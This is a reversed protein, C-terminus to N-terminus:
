RRDEKRLWRRVTHSSVDYRKALLSAVEHPMHGDRELQKAVRLAAAAKKRSSERREAATVRGGERAGQQRGRGRAVVEAINTLGPLITMSALQAPDMVDINFKCRAPPPSFEDILAKVWKEQEAPDVSVWDDDDAPENTTDIM